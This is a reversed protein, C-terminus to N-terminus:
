PCAQQGDEELYESVFEEIRDLARKSEPIPFLPYVHWMDDAIHLECHVGCEACRTAIRTADDILIELSGVYVLSPALGTLDGFVPSVLPNKEEGRAYLQASWRLSEPFLMPDVGALEDFSDGTCTLDCWPSLAVICSPQRVPLEKLKLALCFSLGGGASEGIIAINQSPYISRIRQYAEVADELAAPFPHEPALRYGVCLTPRGTKEALIGGFGKSYALSGAV